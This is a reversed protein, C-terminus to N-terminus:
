IEIVKYPKKANIKQMIPWAVNYVPTGKITKGIHTGYHAHGHFVVTVGHRDIVEEFRSSGLFPYIELPEGKNTGAIPGYHLLAVKKDYPGIYDLAVELQEAENIAETVFSKIIDEGFSGLMHNGFGGGFGKVGAFGVNNYEFVKEGLVQIGGEELIKRVEEQKGRSYDHNGLVAVKPIPCKKLYEVLRTAEEPLGHDTLDGGILFVDADKGIMEFIEEYNGYPQLSKGVHTDALAAIKISNKQAM